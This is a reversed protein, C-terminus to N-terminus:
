DKPVVRPKYVALLERNTDGELSKGRELGGGYCCESTCQLANAICAIMGMMGRRCRKSIFSRGHYKERGHERGKGPRRMSPQREM